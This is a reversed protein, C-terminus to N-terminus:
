IACPRSYCLIGSILRAETRLPRVSFCIQISVSDSRADGFGKASMEPCLYLCPIKERVPFVGFFPKQTTLARCMSLQLWTKGSGSFAGLFVVGRPLFNDIAFDIEGEPLEGLRHFKDRWSLANTGHQAALSNLTEVSRACIVRPDECGERLQQEILQQNALMERALAKDKVIKIYHAVNSVRM